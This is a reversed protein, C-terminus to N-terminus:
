LPEATPVPHVMDSYSGPNHPGLRPHEVQLTQQKRHLHFAEEESILGM